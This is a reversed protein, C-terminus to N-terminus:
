KGPDKPMFERGNLIHDIQLAIEEYSRLFARKMPEKKGCEYYVVTNESQTELLVTDNQDILMAKVTATHKCSLNTAQAYANLRLVFSEDSLISDIPDIYVKEFLKSFVLKAMEIAIPGVDLDHASSMFVGSVFTERSTHLIGPSLEFEVVLNSHRNTDAFSKNLERIDTRLNGPTTCAGLTSILISMLLFHLLRM